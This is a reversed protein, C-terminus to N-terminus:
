FPKIMHDSLPAHTPLEHDPVTVHSVFTFLSILASVSRKTRTAWAVHASIHTKQQLVKIRESRHLRSERLNLGPPLKLEDVSQTM